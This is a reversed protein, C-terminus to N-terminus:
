ELWKEHIIITVLVDAERLLQIYVLMTITGLYMGGKKM